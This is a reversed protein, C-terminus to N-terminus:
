VEKIMWRKIHGISIKSVILDSDVLYKKVKRWEAGSIRCARMIELQSRPTDTIYKMVAQAAENV